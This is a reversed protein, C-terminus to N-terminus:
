AGRALDLLLGVKLFRRKGLYCNLAAGAGSWLLTWPPLSAGGRCVGKHVSQLNGYCVVTCSRPQLADPAARYGLWPRKATPSSVQGTLVYLGWLLSPGLIFHPPSCLKLNQTIQTPPIKLPWRRGSLLWVDRREIALSCARAFYGHM